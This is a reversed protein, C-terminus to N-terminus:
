GAPSPKSAVSSLGESAPASSAQMSRSAGLSVLRHAQLARHQGHGAQPRQQRETRRRRVRRRGQRQFVLRDARAMALLRAARHRQREAHDVAAREALRAVPLQGVQLLAGRRELRRHGVRAEGAVAQAPQAAVRVVVPQLAADPHEEVADVQGPLAHRQEVQRVQLADLHQAPRLARQQALVGGGARHVQHAAGRTERRGRLDLPGETLMAQLLGAAADLARQDVLHQRCPQAEAVQGAVAQDVVALVAAGEAALLPAASAALQQPRRVGVEGRSQAQLLAPLVLVAMGEGGAVVARLGPGPHGEDAVRRQRDVRPAPLNVLVRRVAGADLLVAHGQLQVAAPRAARLEGAKGAVAVPAVGGRQIGVALPEGHGGGARRQVMALEALLQPQGIREAFVEVVQHTGIVQALVEVALHPDAEARVRRRVEQAVLRLDLIIAQGRRHDRRRQEVARHLVHVARLGALGARQEALQAPPRGLAQLHGGPQAVGLLALAAPQGAPDAPQRRQRRVREVRQGRDPLPAALQQAIGRQAAVVPALAPDRVVVEGALEAEGVAELGVQEPEQPHRPAELGAADVQLDDVRLHRGGEVGLPGGGVVQAQAPDEAVTARPQVQREVLGVDLPSIREPPLRDPM